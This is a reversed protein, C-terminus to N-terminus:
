LSKGEEMEVWYQTEDYIDKPHVRKWDLKKLISSSSSSVDFVAKNEDHILLTGSVTGVFPYSLVALKTGDPAIRGEVDLYMSLMMGEVASGKQHVYVSFNDQPFRDKIIETWYRTRQDSRNTGQTIEKVTRYSSSLLVILALGIGIWKQKQIVRYVAATSVLLILPHMSVLYSSFIPTRTYRAISIMIGLSVICVLVFKKQVSGSRLFPAVLFSGIMLMGGLVANGGIIHGWETPMFVSIFTKWRRNLVELSINYQDYLIYYKMNQLNMFDHRLDYLLIPITPVICGLGLAILGKFGSFGFAVMSVLILVGLSVGQLHITAGLSAFFGMFFLFRLRKTKGYFFLSLLLCLSVLSLPSQNTLNVSQAIQATSVATFLGLLLGFSTNILKYGLWMLGVVFLGYSITLFVWPSILSPVYFLSGIMIFWYWVGSTQFPGASSFPGLLPIQISEIAHRAIMVDHIQDYALGWRDSYRYFRLFFALSVICVSLIIVTNRKM